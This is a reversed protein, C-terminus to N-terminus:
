QQSQVPLHKSPCDKVQTRNIIINYKEIKQPVNFISNIEAYNTATM